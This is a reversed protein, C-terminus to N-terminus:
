GTPRRDLWDKVAVRVLDSVNGDFSADAADTMERFQEASFGIKLKRPFRPRGKVPYNMMMTTTREGPCSSLRILGGGRLGPFPRPAAAALRSPAPFYYVWLPMGGLIDWTFSQGAQAALAVHASVDGGAPLWRGWWRWPRAAALYAVVAAAPLAFWWRSGRVDAVLNPHSFPPLLPTKLPSMELSLFPARFRVTPPRFAVITSMHVIHVPHPRNEGFLGFIPSRYSILSFNDKGDRALSARRAGTWMTWMDM